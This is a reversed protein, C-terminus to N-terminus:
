RKMGLVGALGLAGVALVVFGAIQQVTIGLVNMSLLGSLATPSIHAIGGAMVLAYAVFWLIKKEDGM